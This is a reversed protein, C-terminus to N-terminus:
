NEIFNWDKSLHFVTFITMSLALHLPHPVHASVHGTATKSTL